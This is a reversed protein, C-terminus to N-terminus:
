KGEELPDFVLRASGGGLAVRAQVRMGIRILTTDSAEICSMLRPGEDLDILSVNYNGGQDASRFITTKSYVTGKGSPSFWKLNESGCSPCHVRPYFVAKGCQHCSQIKWQGASLFSFYIKEPGAKDKPVDDDIM